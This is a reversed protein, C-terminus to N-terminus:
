FNKCQTDSLAQMFQLLLAKFLTFIGYGQQEHINRNRKQLHVCLKRFDIIALMKRYPHDKGVLQEQTIM